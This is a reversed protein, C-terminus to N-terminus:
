LVDSFFVFNLIIIINYELYNYNNYESYNYNNYESYNYQM